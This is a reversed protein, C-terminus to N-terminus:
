YQLRFAIFGVGLMRPDDSVGLQAPSQPHPIDLELKVRKDSCWAREINLPIDMPEAGLRGSWLTKEGLRISVETGTRDAAVFGTLTLVIMFSRQAETLQPCPVLISASRSNSWVGWHEPTSWGSLLVVRGSGEGGLYYVTDSEPYFTVRAVEDDTLRMYKPSALEKQRPAMAIVFASADLLCGKSLAVMNRNEGPLLLFKRCDPGVVAFLSNTDDGLGSYREAFVEPPPNYLWPAHKQLFYSLPSPTLYSEGRAPNNAAFNHMALLLVCVFGVWRRGPGERCWALVILLLPFFLSVYWLAYRALGPTGGSNLNVTSSQAYLSVVVYTAVFLWRAWRKEPSVVRSAHTRWAVLGGILIAVGLPWNPLLGLDPDVLWVYFVPLNKGASFSGTRLLPTPVGFRALYYAPHVSILLVTACFAAVEWFRYPTNRGAIIRIGLLVIAVVAFSPNQTSAMAVAVGALLYSHRFVLITATLTLCYTFFETHVKDIFWLMPSVFTLLLVAALGRWGYYRIALVAPICLLLWHLLSFCTHPTLSLGFVDAVTGISAALLSYFWFHPFDATGSLELAPFAAMLAEASVLGRIMGSNVLAEYKSFSAPTMWPRRTNKWALYMAYYESGDGVRVPPLLFVALLFVGLLVVPVASLKLSARLKRPRDVASV